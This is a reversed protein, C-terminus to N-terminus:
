NVCCAMNWIVSSFKKIDIIALTIWLLGTVGATISIPLFLDYKNLGPVDNLIGRVFMRYIYGFDDSAIEWLPNMIRVVIFTTDLFNYETESPDGKFYIERQRKDM